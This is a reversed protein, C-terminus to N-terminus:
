LTDRKRGILWALLYDELARPSLVIRRPRAPGELLTLSVDDAHCLDRVAPGVADTHDSLPLDVLGLADFLVDQGRAFSAPAVELEVSLWASFRMAAALLRGHPVEGTGLRALLACVTEGYSVGGGRMLVLSAADFDLSRLVAERLSRVERSRVSAANAGLWRPLDSSALLARRALHACGEEFSDAHESELLSLDDYVVVPDCRAGLLGEGAPIDILCRGGIRGHEMEAFTTPVAAYAIGGRYTAAVFSALDACAAGGLSVLLDDASIGLSAAADFVESAVGLTRGSPGAPVTIRSVEFSADACSSVLAEVCGPTMGEEILLLLRSADSAERLVAGARVPGEDTVYVDYSEDDALHVRVRCPKM